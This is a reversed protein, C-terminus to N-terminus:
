RYSLQDRTLEGSLARYLYEENIKQFLPNLVPGAPLSVLVNAKNWRSMVSEPEDVMDNYIEDSEKESDFSQVIGKAVIQGVQTGIQKSIYDHTIVSAVFHVVTILLVFILLPQKM